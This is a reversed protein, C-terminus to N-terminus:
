IDWASKKGRGAFASTIDCGIIILPHFFTLASAYNSKRLGGMIHQFVMVSNVM